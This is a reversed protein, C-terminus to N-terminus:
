SKYHGNYSLYLASVELYSIWLLSYVVFNFRIFQSIIQLISVNEKCFSPTKIQFCMIHGIATLYLNYIEVCFVCTWSLNFSGTIDKSNEISYELILCKKTNSTHRINSFSDNILTVCKQLFIWSFILYYKYYKDGKVPKIFHSFPDYKVLETFSM